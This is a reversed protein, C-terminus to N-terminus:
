GMDDRPRYYTPRSAVLGRNTLPPLLSSPSSFSGDVAAFLSRPRHTRTIGYQM